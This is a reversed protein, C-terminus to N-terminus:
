ELLEIIREVDLMHQPVPEATEHHHQHVEFSSEYSCAPNEFEDYMTQELQRQEMDEFAARVDVKAIHEWHRYRHQGQQAAHELKAYKWQLDTLM